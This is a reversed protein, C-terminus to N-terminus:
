QNKRREEHFMGFILLIALTMLIDLFFPSVTFTQSIQEIQPPAQFNFIQSDIAMFDFFLIFSIIALLIGEGTERKNASEIIQKRGKRL